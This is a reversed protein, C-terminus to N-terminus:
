GLVLGWCLGVKEEFSDGGCDLAVVVTLAGACVTVM